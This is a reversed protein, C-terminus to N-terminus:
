FKGGATQYRRSVSRGAPMLTYLEPNEEAAGIIESGAPLFLHDRKIESVARLEEETVPRFL